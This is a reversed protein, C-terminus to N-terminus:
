KPLEKSIRQYKEQNSPKFVIIVRGITKVVTAGPISEIATEVEEVSSETNQLLSVKLLERKELAKEIQNVTEESIGNKGIQFLPSLKHAKSKLFQKQKGTLKM